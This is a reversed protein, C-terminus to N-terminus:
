KLSEFANKISVIDDLEDGKLIDKNRFEEILEEDRFDEFTLDYFNTKLGLDSVLESAEPFKIKSVIQQADDEIKEFLFLQDYGQYKKPPNEKLFSVLEQIITKKRKLVEKELGQLSSKKYKIIDKQLTSIERQFNEKVDVNLISKNRCKIPVLYMERIKDEKEKIENFEKFDESENLKDFLSLKTELAKKLEADRFPLADKPINIRKTNFNAGTFKLEVFQVKATYTNIRRKLDPQLPPNLELKKKIEDVKRYNVSQIIFQSQYSLYDLEDLEAMSKKLDINSAIKQILFDDQDEPQYYYALLKTRIIDSMLVANPGIADELFVKSQQFLFYGVDDVIIFNILNGDIQDVKIGHEELKEISNIEGFGNRINNEDIDLVVGVNVNKKKAEILPIALEDHISVASVIILEKANFILELIKGYDLKSIFEHKM